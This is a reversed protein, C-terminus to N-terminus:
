DIRFSTSETFGEGTIKLYYMGKTIVAPLKLSYSSSGGQHEVSNTVLQQGAANYVAIEYKGKQLNNVQVQTIGTVVPNPSVAVSATTKGLKLNVISSYQDRGNNGVGKIRYFNNGQNVVRDIWSYNVASQNNGTAALKAADTFQTGNTSEQIVYEKM